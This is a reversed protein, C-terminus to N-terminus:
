PLPAKFHYYLFVTLFPFISLFFAGVGGLAFAQGSLTEIPADDTWSDAGLIVEGVTVLTAGAVLFVLFLVLMSITLGNFANANAM